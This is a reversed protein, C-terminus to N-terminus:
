PQLSKISASEGGEQLADSRPTFRLRDGPDDSMAKSKTLDRSCAEYSSFDLWRSFQAARSLMRVYPKPDGSQSLARLATLYDDRFVTPVIIRTLGQETLAQNMALRSTRGNGDSFPHIESVVFMAMAARAPGPPVAMIEEFGKKLTGPVRAPDVFQTMGAKNAKDKFHGPRKGARSRIVLENWERLKREFTEYTTPFAPTRYSQLIAQHTGIVDHSDDERYALPHGLMVIEHAEDLAFETGEIFNSFYSEIFAQLQRDLAPVVPDVAPPMKILEDRLVAFLDLRDTDVPENAAYAIAATGSLKYGRTGQLAGIRNNLDQFERAWGLTEAIERAQDRLQNMALEGTASMRKELLNELESATLTRREGRVTRTRQCNELFARAQSSIHTAGFPTPVRTDSPLPLPGEDIKLQVVGDGLGISRRYSGTMYYTAQPRTDFASRHSILADPAVISCIAYLERRITREIPADMDDTYIGAYLQLLSGQEARRTIARRTADDATRTVFLAM